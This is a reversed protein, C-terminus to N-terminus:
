GHRQVLYYTSLRPRTQPKSILVVRRLTLLRKPNYKRRCIVNGTFDFGKMAHEQVFEASREEGAKSSNIFIGTKDKNIWRSGDDLWATYVEEIVDTITMVGVDKFRQKRHNVTQMQM